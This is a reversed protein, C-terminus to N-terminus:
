PFSMTALAPVTVQIWRISGKKGPCIRPHINLFMMKNRFFGYCFALIPDNELEIGRFRGTLNLSIAPHNPSFKMENWKIPLTFM